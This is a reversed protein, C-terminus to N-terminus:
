FSVGLRAGAFFGDGFKIRNEDRENWDEGEFWFRDFAYGGSVDVYVNENIDWRVGTSVTKEYYFLKNRESTRDERLFADHDWDFAGYVTVPLDWLKASVKAHVTRVLAYYAELTLWDLPQYRISSFPAGILLQLDETPEWWFGGGPIPVWPLFDRRNSINMMVLWANRRGAPIRLFANATVALEEAAGFLNSDTPSSVEVNGGALWGIDLKRRFTLGIAPDYLHEPFRNGTDPLRAGTDMDWAEMRASLGWEHSPSQDIPLWTTLKHVTFGMQRDQEEVGESWYKRADYDVRPSLRGVTDPSLWLGPSMQAPLTRPGALCTIVIALLMLRRM